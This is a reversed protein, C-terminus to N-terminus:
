KPASFASTTIQPIVFISQFPKKLKSHCIARAVRCTKDSAKKSKLFQHLQRPRKTTSPQVSRLKRAKKALQQLNQIEKKLVGSSEAPTIKHNAPKSDELGSSEDPDKVLAKAVMSGDLNRLHPFERELCKAIAEALPVTWTKDIGSSQSAESANPNEFGNPINEKEKGKGKGTTLHERNGLVNPDLSKPTKNSTPMPQPRDPSKLINPHTQVNEKKSVVPSTRSPVSSSAPQPVSSTPNGSSPTPASNRPPISAPQPISSTPSGSSPAPASSRPPIRAPQPVSSAPNGSFLTPKSSRPPIRYASPARFFNHASSTDLHQELACDDAFYRDCTTCYPEDYDDSEDSDDSDDLHATSYDFHQQLAVDDVFFRDCTRCYPESPAHASSFQLHNQLAANDVFCRGCPRCYAQYAGHVRSRHERLDSADRYLRNCTRCYRAYNVQHIESDDIHQALAAPHVFSRDCPACYAM